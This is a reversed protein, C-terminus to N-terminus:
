NLTNNILYKGELQLYDDESFHRSCVKMSKSIAKGMKLYQIWAKLIKKDKPFSHFGFENERGYLTTCQPVCCYHVMIASQLCVSDVFKLADM